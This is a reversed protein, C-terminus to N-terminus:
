SLAKLKEFLVYLERMVTKQQLHQAFVSGVFKRM